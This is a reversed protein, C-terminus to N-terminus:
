FFPSSKSLEMEKVSLFCAKPLPTSPLSPKGYLAPQLTFDKSRSPVNKLHLSGALAEAPAQGVAPFGLSWWTWVEATVSAGWGTHNRICYETHNAM